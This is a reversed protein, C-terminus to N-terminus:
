HGEIGFFSDMSSLHDAWPLNPAVDRNPCRSLKAWFKWTQWKYDMNIKAM